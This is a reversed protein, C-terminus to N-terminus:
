LFGIAEAFTPRSYWMECSICAEPAGYVWTQDYPAAQRRRLLEDQTCLLVAASSFQSPQPRRLIIRLSALSRMTRAPPVASGRLAVGPLVIPRILASGSPLRRALRETGTCGLPTASRLSLYAQTM